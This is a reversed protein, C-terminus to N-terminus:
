KSFNFYQLFFEFLYSNKLPSEDIQYNTEELEWKELEVVNGIIYSDNDLPLNWTDIVLYGEGTEILFAYEKYGLTANTQYVQM